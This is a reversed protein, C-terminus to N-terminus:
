NATQFKARDIISVHAPRQENGIAEKLRRIEELTNEIRESTPLAEAAEELQEESAANEKEDASAKNREKEHLRKNVYDTVIFTGAAVITAFSILQVASLDTLQSPSVPKDLSTTSNDRQVMSYSGTSNGMGAYPFLAFTAAMLVSLGM